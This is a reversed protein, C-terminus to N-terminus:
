VCQSYWQNQAKCTSGSQCCKSGTWGDGGCQSYKAGCTPSPEEGGDGGDGGDGGTVQTFFAWSERAMWNGQNDNADGVHGGGHAIWWVPHGASSCSYTTKIHQNSGPGPEPANTAQCGNLRVFRDRLQRGSGIGLVNDASGHIGLYAVPTNGGACGSLEAGAIVAVARFINPRSCALSYSMAGGYSFGTAFRQTQDVCLQSEVQALISDVFAVDQGGSNAWGANLGEPAVFIASEGALARLGYYAPAVNNMSGSLWHFGFILKYKKNVDYNAPVQLTYQRGNINKIGSAPPTKGCGTTQAIVAPCAALVATILKPLSIM